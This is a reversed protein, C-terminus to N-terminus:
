SHPWYVKQLGEYIYSSFPIVSSSITPYCWRSLPCSNSCAGPSPSPCPLRAHQLGHPWLSDSVVSRSFLLIFLLDLSFLLHCRPTVVGVAHIWLVWTSCHLSVGLRVTVWSHRGWTLCDPGGAWVTRCPVAAWLGTSESRGLLELTPVVHELTPFCTRNARLQSDSSLPHPLFHRDSARM